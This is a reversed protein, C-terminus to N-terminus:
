WSMGSNMQAKDALDDEETHSIHNDIAERIWESNSMDAVHARQELMEKREMDLRFCIIHNLDHNAPTKM